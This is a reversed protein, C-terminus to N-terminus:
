SANHKPCIHRKPTEIRYRGFCITAGKTSECAAHRAAREGRCVCWGTERILEPYQALEGVHIDDSCHIRVTIGVQLVGDNTRVKKVCSEKGHRGADSELRVCVEARRVDRERNNLCCLVERVFAPNSVPFRDKEVGISDGGTLKTGACIWKWILVDG